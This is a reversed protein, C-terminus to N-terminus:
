KKRFALYAIAGIAVVGLGIWVFKMSSGSGSGGINKNEDGGGTSVIPPANLSANYEAICKDYDDKRRRGILPRRGCAAIRSQRRASAGSQQRQYGVAGAIQAGTTAIGMIDDLGVRNQNSAPSQTATVGTSTPKYDTTWLGQVESGM